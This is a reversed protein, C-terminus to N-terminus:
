FDQGPQEEGLVPIHHESHPFPVVEPGMPAAGGGVIPGRGLKPPPPIEVPSKTAPPEVPAKPASPEGPTSKPAAKSTHSPLNNIEVNDWRSRPNEHSNYDWHPNRYEDGPYYRWEGGKEDWLSKGNLKQESPRSAPGVTVPGAVPPSVGPPPLRRELPGQVPPLSPGPPPPIQPDQKWPGWSVAQVSEDHGEGDFTIGDLEGAKAELRQGVFADAAVLREANWRIDEAHLKAATHRAAMDSLDVRRTDRVSLDDGVKFGDVEASEIAELAQRQAAQIDTVGDEAINAARVIVDAQNRM